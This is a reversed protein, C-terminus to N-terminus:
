HLNVNAMNIMDKLRLFCLLFLAYGNSIKYFTILILM